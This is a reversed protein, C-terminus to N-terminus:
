PCALMQSIMKTEKTPGLGGDVRVRVRVRLALSYYVSHSRLLGCQVRTSHVLIYYLADVPVRM